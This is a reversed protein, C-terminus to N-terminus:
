RMSESFSRASNQTGIAPRCSHQATSHPYSPRGAARLRVWFLVPHSVCQPSAMALVDAPPRARCPATTGSNLLMCTPAHSSLARSSMRPCPAPASGNLLPWANAHSMAGHRGCKAQFQRGRGRIIIGISGMCLHQGLVRLDQQLPGVGGGGEAEVHHPPLAGPPTRQLAAPTRPLAGAHPLSPPVLSPRGNCRQPHSNPRADAPAQTNNAPPVERWGGSECRRQM